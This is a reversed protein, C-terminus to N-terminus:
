MERMLNGMEIATMAAEFGKNGTKGGARDLAQEMTDCTLVGNAVPRASEEAIRDLARTVTSALYDFHPTEGRVLAGLAILADPCSKENACLGRLAAPIEFSGPVRIVTVKSEDVGHRVLADMAGSLLMEGVRSNFRALVIGFSLSSADLHGAVQRM